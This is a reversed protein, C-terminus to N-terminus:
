APRPQLQDIRGLITRRRRHAEEYRRVLELEEGSLDALRAVVQSAALTAYGALALEDVAPAPAQGGKAGSSAKPRPVAPAAPAVPAPPERRPVPPGAPLARQEAQPSPTSSRGLLERVQQELQRRGIRVAFKGVFRALRVREDVRRRGTAAFEPLRQNLESAIGIPVYLLADLLWGIPDRDDPM